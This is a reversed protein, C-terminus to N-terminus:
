IFTCDSVTMIHMYNRRRLRHGHVDDACTQVAKGNCHTAIPM